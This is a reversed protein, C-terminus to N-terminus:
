DTRSSGRIATRALARIIELPRCALCAAVWSVVTLNLDVKSIIVNQIIFQKIHRFDISGDVPFVHIMHLPLQTVQEPVLVFQKVHIEVSPSM